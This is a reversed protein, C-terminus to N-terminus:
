RQRGQQGPSSFLADAAAATRIQQAAQGQSAQLRAVDLDIKGAYQAAVKSAVADNLKADKMDTPVKGERLEWTTHGDSTGRYLLNVVITGIQHGGRDCLALTVRVGGDPADYAPILQVPPLLSASFIGHQRMGDEGLNLKSQPDSLDHIFRDYFANATKTVDFKGTDMVVVVDKISNQIQNLADVSFAFKQSNDQTVQYCTYHDCAATTPKLKLELLQDGRSTQVKLSLTCDTGQMNGKDYSFGKITVGPQIEKGQWARLWRLEATCIDQYRPTTAHLTEAQLMGPSGHLAGGLQQEQGVVQQTPATQFNSALM